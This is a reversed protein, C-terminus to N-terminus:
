PRVARVYGSESEEYGRTIECINGDDKWAGTKLLGDKDRYWYSGEIRIGLKEANASGFDFDFYFDLLEENTPLRWDSYGGLNLTKVYDLVEDVSTFVPSRFQQWVLNTSRDKLTGDGTEQLGKTTIGTCGSLLIILIASLFSYKSYNVM